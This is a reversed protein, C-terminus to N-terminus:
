SIPLRLGFNNKVTYAVTTCFSLLDLTKRIWIVKFNEWFKYNNLFRRNPLRENRKIARKLLAIARKTARKLLAIARKTDRKLLAIARKTARNLLAIAREISCDSKQFLAVL